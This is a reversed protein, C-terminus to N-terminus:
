RPWPHQRNSRSITKARASELVTGSANRLIPIGVVASLPPEGPMCATGLVPNLENISAGLAGRRKFRMPQMGGINMQADACGTTVVQSGNCSLDCIRVRKVKLLDSILCEISSHCHIATAFYRDEIPQIRSAEEYGNQPVALPVDTLRYAAKDFSHTDSTM